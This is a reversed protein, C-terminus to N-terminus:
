LDEGKGFLLTLYRRFHGLSERAFRASMEDDDQTKGLIFSGQIVAQMHRALGAPDADIGYKAIAEAFDSEFMRANGLISDGSARRIMESTRFNEQLLTGAVCSFGEAPGGILAIRLDIYALLRALPDDFHRSPAAGFFGLTCESWYDAVAVGLSEKSPFHHFFAGKTVGAEKCLEDVSTASFGQKRVLKVAAELLRERANSPAPRFPRNPIM